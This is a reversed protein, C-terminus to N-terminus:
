PRGLHRYRQIVYLAAVPIPSILMAGLAYGDASPQWDADTEKIAKADFYIAMVAILYILGSGVFLLVFLLLLWLATTNAGALWTVVAGLGVLFTFATLGLAIIPWYWWNSDIDSATVEVDSTTATHREDDSPTATHREKGFTTATHREGEPTWERDTSERQPDTGVGRSERPHDEGFRDTEPETDDVVADPSEPDRKLMYALVACINLFPIASGILWVARDPEWDFHEEAYEIDYKMAMPILFTMLLFAFFLFEGLITGVWRSELILDFLDMSISAVGLMSIFFLGFMLMPGAGLRAAIKWWCDWSERRNVREYRRLLYPVVVGVNLIPILCGLIWLPAKPRWDIDRTRIMRIDAYVAIPMGLWSLLLFLDAGGMGDDPHWAEPAHAWILSFGVLSLIAYFPLNLMRDAPRPQDEALSM